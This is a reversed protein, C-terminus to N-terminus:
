TREILHLMFARPCPATFSLRRRRAQITFVDLEPRPPPPGSAPEELFALYADLEQM